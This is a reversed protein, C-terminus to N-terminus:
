FPSVKEKEKQIFEYNLANLSQFIKKKIYPVIESPDYKVLRCIIRLSNEQVKYVPDHLCTFLIKLYRQNNLYADFNENLSSLMTERVSNDPDGLCVGLFKELIEDVFQKTMFDGKSAQRIYLLSGANAAAKRILPSDNELYELVVDKVFVAMSDAYYKFDFTALTQLALAVSDIKRFEPNSSLENQLAETFKTVDEQKINESIIPFSYVRGSLIASITMLMKLQISEAYAGWWNDSEGLACIENLFELTRPYLGYFIVLDLLTHLNVYDNLKKGFKTCLCDVCKIIEPCFPKAKKELEAHLTNMIKGMDEKLFSSDIITFLNAVTEYCIAKETKSNFGFTLLFSLATKLHTVCFIGTDFRALYPITEIVALQIFANKNNRHNLIYNSIDELDQFINEKLSCSLISRLVIINGHIINEDLSARTKKIEAFIRSIWDTQLNLERQSINKISVNLFDLAIERLYIKKERVINWILIFSENNMFIKNFSLYPAEILLEKLALIAAFKRIERVNEGKLWKFAEEVDAEVVQAVKTGGM